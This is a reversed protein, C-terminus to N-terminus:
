PKIVKSKDRSEKLRSIEQKIRFREYEREKTKLKRNLAKIKMKLHAIKHKTVNYKKIEKSIMLKSISIGKHLNKTLNQSLGMTEISGSEIKTQRKTPQNTPKSLFDIDILKGRKCSPHIQKTVNRSHVPIHSQDCVVRRETGCVISAWTEQSM